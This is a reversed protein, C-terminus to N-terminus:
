SQRGGDVPQSVDDVPTSEIGIPPPRWVCIEPNPPDLTM